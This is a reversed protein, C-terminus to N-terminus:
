PENQTIIADDFYVTGYTGPKPDLLVYFSIYPWNPPPGGQLAQASLDFNYGNLMVKVWKGTNSDAVIKITNFFYPNEIVKVGTQLTVWNGAAGRYQLSKDALVYRVYATYMATATGIGLYFYYATLNDTYTWSIEAGFRTPALYPERHEIMINDVSNPGVTCALAFGGTRAPYTVIKYTAGGSVTIQWAQTGYWFSDMWLVEGNRDYRKPSGLRIALESLTIPSAVGWVGGLDIPVMLLRGQSDTALPTPTTDYQGYAMTILRGESDVALTKLQGAYQGMAVVVLNGNADAQLIIPNGAPDRALIYQGPTFDPLGRHLQCRGHQCLPLTLASLSLLLLSLILTSISLISTLRTKTIAQFFSRLRGV